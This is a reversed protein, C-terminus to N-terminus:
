HISWLSFSYNKNALHDTKSMLKVGLKKCFDHLSNTDSLLSFLCTVMDFLSTFVDPEEM